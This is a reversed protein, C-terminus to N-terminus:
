PLPENWSVAIADESEKPVARDQAPRSDNENYGIRNEKRKKSDLQRCGAFGIAIPGIRPVKFSSVVM